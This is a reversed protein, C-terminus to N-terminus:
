EQVLNIYEAKIMRHMVEEKRDFVTVSIPYKIGCRLPIEKSVTLDTIAPINVIKRTIGYEDRGSDSRKEVKELYLKDDMIYAYDYYEADHKPYLLTKYSVTLGEMGLGEIGSVICEASAPLTYNACFDEKSDCSPEKKKQKDRNAEKPSGGLLDEIEDQTLMTFTETDAEVENDEGENIEAVGDDEPNEPKSSSKEAIPFYHIFYERDVGKFIEELRECAEEGVALYKMGCYFSFHYDTAYGIMACKQDVRTNMDIQVIDKRILPRCYRGDKGFYYIGPEVLYGRYGDITVMPSEGLRKGVRNVPAFAQCLETRPENEENKTYFSRSKPNVMDYKHSFDYGGFKNVNYELPENHDALYSGFVESYELKVNCWSRNAAYMVLLNINDVMGFDDEVISCDSDAESDDGAGSCDDGWESCDEETDSNGDGSEAGNSLPEVFFELEDVYGKLQEKLESMSIVFPVEAKFIGDGIHIFSHGLLEEKENFEYDLKESIDKFNCNVLSM